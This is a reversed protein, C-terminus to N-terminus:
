QRTAGDFSQEAHYVGVLVLLLLGLAPTPVPPMRAVLIHRLIHRSSDSSIDRVQDLPMSHCVTTVQLFTKLDVSHVRQPTNFPEVIHYM